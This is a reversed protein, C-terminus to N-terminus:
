KIWEILKWVGLGILVPTLIMWTIIFGAILGDAFNQDHWASM